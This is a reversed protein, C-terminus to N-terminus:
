ARFRRGLRSMMQYEDVAQDYMWDREALQDVLGRAEELALRVNEPPPGSVRGHAVEGAGTLARLWDDMRGTEVVKMEGNALALRLNMASGDFVEAMSFAMGSGFTSFARFWAQGDIRGSGDLYAQSDERYRAMIRAQHQPADNEYGGGLAMRWYDKFMSVLRKRAPRHSVHIESPPGGRRRLQEAFWRPAEYREHGFHCFWNRSDDAEDPLDFGAGAQEAMCNPDGCSCVNSAIYTPKMRVFTWDPAAKMCNTTTTGGTKPLHLFLIVRRDPSNQSLIRRLVSNWRHYHAPPNM